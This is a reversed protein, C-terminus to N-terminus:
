EIPEIPEAFRGVRGSRMWTELRNSKETPGGMGFGTQIDTMLKLNMFMALQFGTQREEIVTLLYFNDKLKIYDAPNTAMWCTGADVQHMVYTYYVPSSFVYKIGKSNSDAHKWYMAKGVLEDTFHPKEAGEPTTIGDVKGFLIKHEVERPNVEVGLAADIATVYGTEMDFVVDACKPVDYGSRYHHMVYVHEYGPASDINYIDEGTKEGNVSWHMHRIDDFEYEWVMGCDFVFKLKKGVFADSSILMPNNLDDNWVSETTATKALEHIHEIPLYDWRREKRKIM